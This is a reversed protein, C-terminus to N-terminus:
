GRNAIGTPDKEKACRKGFLRKLCARAKRSAKGTAPSSLKFVLLVVINEIPLLVCDGRPFLWERERYGVGFFDHILEARM